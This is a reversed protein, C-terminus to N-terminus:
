KVLVLSQVQSIKGAKLLAIYKGSALGNANFEVQHIGANQGQHVLDAVKRGSVDFISLDVSNATPLHYRLMTSANFPNPHCPYLAFGDPQTANPSFVGNQTNIEIIQVQGLDATGLGLNVAHQLLPDITAPNFTTDLDAMIGRAYADVAVMDGSIILKHAPTVVGNFPPIVMPGSVTMISRADVITLDSNVARAIEAITQQFTNSFTPLSHLYNRTQATNPGSVTGIHNKMGCSFFAANHRKLNCFNVIIPAQYIDTYVSLELKGTIWNSQRVNCTETLYVLEGGAQPVAPYLGVLRYYDPGWLSGAEAVQVTGTTVQQLAALTTLISSVSSVTPYPEFNIVFNPKILIDQNNTVLLNLGGLAALASTLMAPYDDGTVCVLLPQGQGNVYPNPIRTRPELMCLGGEDAIGYRALASSGIFAAGGILTKSLFDRRTIPDKFM